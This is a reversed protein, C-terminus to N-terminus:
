FFHSCIRIVDLAFTDIELHTSEGPCSFIIEETVVDTRNQVDIRPRLCMCPRNGDMTKNTCM